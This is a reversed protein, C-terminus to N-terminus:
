SSYNIVYHADKDISESKFRLIYTGRVANLFHADGSNYGKM